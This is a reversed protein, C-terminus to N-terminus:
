DLTFSVQQQKCPAEVAYLGGSSFCDGVYFDYTGRDVMFSQRAPEWRDIDIRRVALQVVATAGAAVTVKTFTALTRVWRIVHPVRVSFFAAVVVKGDFAGTNEVTVNLTLVIDAPAWSSSVPVPGRPSATLAAFTFRTYSLGHLLPFLPAWSGDNNRPEFFPCNGQSNPQQWSPSSPGRVHGSSRPWAQALKGAPNVKGTVVDLIALGGQEAPLWSTLLATRSGAGAGPLLWNHNSADFTVPRGHVLVVVVPVPGGPRTFPVLGALQFAHPLEVGVLNGTVNLVAQLLLQQTGPLDLSTRDAGEGCTCDGFPKGGVCASDGLVLFVLDAAAALDLAASLMPMNLSTSDIDAGRAFTVNAQSYQARLADEVLFVGFPSAGRAVGGGGDLPSYSGVQNIRADCRKTVDPDCGGGNPGIVAIQKFQSLSGLPLLGASNELLVISESAVARTLEVHEASHVVLPELSTDVFPSDFLRAAFKARLVNGAARDVVTESLAGSAVAEPLYRTYWGEGM